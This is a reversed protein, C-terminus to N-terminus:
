WAWQADSFGRHPRSPLGRGASGREPLSVEGTAVRLGGEESEPEARHLVCHQWRVVAEVVCMGFSFIDSALTAGTEKSDALREPACWWQESRSSSAALDRFAPLRAAGDVGMLIQSCTVDGRAVGRQHLFKLALAAQLLARWVFRPTEAEGDDEELRLQRTPAVLLQALSGGVPECVLVRMIAGAAAVRECGGYLQLVNPHNLLFLERVRAHFGGDVPAAAPFVSVQTGLWEGLRPGGQSPAAASDDLEDVLEHPPIVGVRDSRAAAALVHWHGRQRRRARAAPLPASRAVATLRTRLAKANSSPPLSGVTLEVVEVLAARTSEDDTLGHTEKAKQLSNPADCNSWGRVNTALLECCDRQWNCFWQTQNTADSGQKAGVLESELADIRRHLDLALAFAAVLAEMSDNRVSRDLRELADAVLAAIALEGTATATLAGSEAGDEKEMALLQVALVRLRDVAARVAVLRRGDVSLARLQELLELAVRAAAPPSRMAASM